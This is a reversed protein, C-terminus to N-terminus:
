SRAEITITIVTPSGAAKVWPKEVYVQSVPASEDNTGFRVTNATEKDKELVITAKTPAAPSM